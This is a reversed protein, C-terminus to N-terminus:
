VSPEISLKEMPLLADVLTPEISREDLPHDAMKEVATKKEGPGLHDNIETIKQLWELGEKGSTQGPKYNMDLLVVDFSYESLLFPIKRPDREGQVHEFNQRLIFRATQLVDPDDDIILINGPLKQM